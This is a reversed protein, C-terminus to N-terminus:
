SHVSEDKQAHRREWFLTDRLHFKELHLCAQYRNHVATVGVHHRKTDGDYFNLVDLSLQFSENRTAFSGYHYFKEEKQDYRYTYWPLSSDYDFITPTTGKFDRFLEKWSRSYVQAFGQEGSYYKVVIWKGQVEAEWRSGFLWGKDSRIWTLAETDSQFFLITNRETKAERDGFSTNQLGIVSSVHPNKIISMLWRSTEPFKERSQSNLVKLHLFSLPISIVIDALTINNGVFYKKGKLHHEFITYVNEIDRTSHKLMNQDNKLLGNQFCYLAFAPLEIENKHFDIWQDVQASEFPTSGLLSIKKQIGAIYRSIANVQLIKGHDTLLTPRDAQGPAIELFVECLNATILVQDITRDGDRFLLKM